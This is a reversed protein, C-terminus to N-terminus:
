NPIFNFIKGGILPKKAKTTKPFSIFLNLLRRVSLFGFAYAEISDGDWNFEESLKINSKIYKNIQNILYSNKRGGGSIILLDPKSPLFILSNKLSEIIFKSLTASGDYLTLHKLIAISFYSRDLSKPPKKFFFDNKLYTQLIKRNPVGKKAYTGFNDYKKNIKFNVWDDLLSCCPGVDYALINNIGKQKAHDIWTINSIGGLNLFCIKKKIKKTLYYHFIPTLPAGEGGNKVDNDRFNSVVKIKLLDALRQSDGLQYSYGKEPNHSITQGHFGVVDVKNQNIKKERFFKKIAAYNLNTFEKELEKIKRKKLNGKNINKAFNKKIKKSFEKSFPYNHSSKLIIKDKGNTEILAIDIGDASTGSMLGLAIFNRSNSM